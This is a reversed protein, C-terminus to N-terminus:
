GLEMMDSDDSLDSEFGAPAVISYKSIQWPRERKESSSELPIFTGNPPRLSHDDNQQVEKWNEISRNTENKKWTVPDIEGGGDLPNWTQKTLPSTSPDARLILSLTSSAPSLKDEYQEAYGEKIMEEGINIEEDNHNNYLEISPIPSGERRSRGFGFIRRKFNKVKAHLVKWEALFTNEAFFDCEESTWDPGPPRLNAMTCEIAQLRLSLFDTRLELVSNHHVIEHDGYDLYFVECKDDTSLSIVEARYWQNNFGFKAAVMQGVKISKLKHMEYNEEDSYYTNMDSVLEDLANIGPGVIQVWFRSPSEMASVYVEILGESVPLMLSEANQGLNLESTNITNCSSSKGRPLRTASSIELMTCEGEEEYIKNQILMIAANVQQTTGKITVKREDNPGYPLFACEINVKAGSVTQIHHVIDGGRGIIKGCAKQPISMVHSKITPQNHIISKIMKEALYVSEYSGKIICIREPCEINDEKFHVQTGTKNQIDKIMSGGRGIVAPVVLRPVRCEITYRKSIEVQSKRSKIDEEDKRYLVYLVAISVSTLSLGLLITPTFYRAMWKM